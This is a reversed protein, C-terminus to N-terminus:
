FKFAYELHKVLKHYKKLTRLPFLGCGETQLILSIVAFPPTMLFYIFLIKWLILSILSSYSSYSQAWFVTKPCELRSLSLLHFSETSPWVNAVLTFSTMLGHTSNAKSALPLSNPFCPLIGSQILFLKMTPSKFFATM